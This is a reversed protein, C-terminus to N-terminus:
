ITHPSEEDSMCANSHGAPAVANLRSIVGPLHTYNELCCWLIVIIIDGVRLQLDQGNQTDSWLM